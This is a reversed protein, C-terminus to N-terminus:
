DTDARLPGYIHVAYPAFQDELWDGKVPASRNEGLVPLSGGSFGPFRLRYDIVDARTNVAVVYDASPIHTNGKRVRVLAIRITKELAENWQLSPDLCEEQYPWWVHDAKFLPLRDTVERVIDTVAQWSDPHEAMKWRGDQFCYFLLGNAREALASYVMCRTEQSTPARLTEGGRLLDPYHAWSFGQIVVLLPQNKGLALRTMKVHQAFNALPLWNVPYRDILTFDTINAYHLAQDGRYIVLATPRRAPISKLFRHGARVQEPAVRNLDPEDVLYWGWLAPHSDLDAVARRAAMADFKPGASTGPSALVKLGARRAANLYERDPPGTVLNFGISRMEKLDTAPVSFIGIPFSDQTACGSATLLAAGLVFALMQTKAM